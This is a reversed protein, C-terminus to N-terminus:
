LSNKIATVNDTVNSKNNFLSISKTQKFNINNNKQSEIFNLKLIM